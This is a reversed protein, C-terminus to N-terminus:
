VTVEPEKWYGAVYIDGSYSITEDALADQPVTINIEVYGGEVDRVDGIDVYQYASNSLRLFVSPSGLHISRIEFPLMVSLTSHVGESADYSQGAGGWCEAFGDAWKRYYWTVGDLTTEGCAIVPNDKTLAVCGHQDITFTKGKNAPGHVMQVATTPTYYSVEMEAGADNTIVTTPVCTHLKVYAELQEATLPTEIPEALIYQVIVPNGEAYKDALFQKFVSVDWDPSYASDCIALIEANFTIGVLGEGPTSITPYYNCIGLDPKAYQALELGFFEAGYWWNESGDFVLKEIRKTYIGKAFDIEDRYEGIGPLGNPTPVTITQTGKYPEYETAVPGHEIQINSIVMSKGCNRVELVQMDPRSDNLTWIVKAKVKGNEIRTIAAKNGMSNPILIISESGILDETVEADFSVSVIDRDKLDNYFGITFYGNRYNALDSPKNAQTQTVVLVNDPDTTSLSTGCDNSISRGDTTSKITNASFGYINAINKGTVKVEVSGSDGVNEMAVPDGPVDASVQTTKGYLKFGQLPTSAADALTIMNGYVKRVTDAKQSQLARFADGPTPDDAGPCLAAAVADPLVAAKSYPTGELIPQDDRRLTIAFENGSQMKQLEEATVVAKCRGPAGPLRDTM